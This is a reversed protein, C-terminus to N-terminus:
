FVTELDRCLTGMPKNLLLTHILVHSTNGNLIRIDKAKSYLSTLVAKAKVLMGETVIKKQILQNLEHTSVNALVKGDANLIGEQDTLYVITTIGLANAIHAAAMDANINLPNGANDVGTSAIVPIAGTYDDKPSLLHAIVETNVAVITGVSGHQKSFYECQLMAHDAGSLGVAKVGLSNLTRVLLRNVQGCLVTEVVQAAQLSTIRLGDVFESAIGHLALAKQIAKGGGHVVVIPIGEARLRKMDRALRLVLADDQLISGGIKILVAKKLTM